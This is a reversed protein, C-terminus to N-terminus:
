GPRLHASRGAGPGSVWHRASVQRELWEASEMLVLQGSKLASSFRQQCVKDLDGSLDAGSHQPNGGIGTTLDKLATVGYGRALYGEIADATCYDAYIGAVAVDTFDQRRLWVDRPMGPALDNFRSTVHFLNHYAREEERSSFRVRGFATPNTGWMSFENKNMHFVPLREALTGLEIVLEQGKTNWLCHAAPFLASEPSLPYEGAFHADYKILVADAHAHSVQRLFENFPRVLPMGKGAPHTCAGDPLVFDNQMDVIDLLTKAPPVHGM